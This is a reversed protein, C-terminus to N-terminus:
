LRKSGGKRDPPSIRWQIFSHESDVDISHRFGLLCGERESSTIKYKMYDFNTAASETDALTPFQGLFEAIDDRIFCYLKFM